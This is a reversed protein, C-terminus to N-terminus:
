RKNEDSNGIREALAAYDIGSMELTDGELSAGSGMRQTNGDIYSAIELYNQWGQTNSTPVPIDFTRAAKLALSVPLQCRLRAKVKGFRESAFWVQYLVCLSTQNVKACEATPIIELPTDHWCVRAFPFEHGIYLSQLGYDRLQSYLSRNQHIGQSVNVRRKRGKTIQITAIVM